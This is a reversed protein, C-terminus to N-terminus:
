PGGTNLDKAKGMGQMGAKEKKDPSSEEGKLGAIRDRLQAAREFELAEAAALM